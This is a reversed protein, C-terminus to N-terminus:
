IVLPISPLDLLESLQCVCMAAVRADADRTGTTVALVDPGRSLAEPVAGPGRAVHVVRCDRAFGHSTAIEDGPRKWWNDRAHTSLLDRSGAAEV